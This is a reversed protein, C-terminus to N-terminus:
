ESSSTTLLFEVPAGLLQGPINPKFKVIVTPNRYSHIKLVKGRYINGYSDKAIAKAGVLLGISKRDTFVKVLVQDNYQRACGRRYSVIVGITKLHPSLADM